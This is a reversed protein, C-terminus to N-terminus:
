ESTKRTLGREIVETNATNKTKSFRLVFREASLKNRGQYETMQETDVYQERDDKNYVRVVDYKREAEFKPQPVESQTQAHLDFVSAGSGGWTVPTNQPVKPTEFLQTPVGPRIQPSESPRVVHELHNPM